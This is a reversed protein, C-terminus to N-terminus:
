ELRSSSFVGVVWQKAWVVGMGGRAEFTPPPPLMLVRVEYVGREGEALLVSQRISWIRVLIVEERSALAPKFRYIEEVIEGLFLLSNERM